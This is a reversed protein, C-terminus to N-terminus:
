SRRSLPPTEFGFGTPMIQYSARYDFPIVAPGMDQFLRLCADIQSRWGTPPSKPSVPSPAHGSSGWAFGPFDISWRYRRRLSLAADITAFRYDAADMYRCAFTPM